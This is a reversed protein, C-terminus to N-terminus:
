LRVATVTSDAGIITTTGAANNASRLGLTHSGASLGSIIITREVTWFDNIPSHTRIADNWPAGDIAVTVFNVVAAPTQGVVSFSLMFLDATGTSPVTITNGVNGFSTSGVAFNTGFLTITAAFPSRGPYNARFGSM